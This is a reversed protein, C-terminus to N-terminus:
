KNRPIFTFEMDILIAIDTGAEKLDLDEADYFWKIVVPIGSLSLKKLESFIDYLFKASSSNFYALETQFILPNETTYDINEKNLVDNTFSKIWDIVPYYLARVDEPCSTGHIIFINEDPSFLIEPTKTTACIHLKQM